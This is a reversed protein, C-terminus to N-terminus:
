NIKKKTTVTIKTLNFIIKLLKYIVILTCILTVFIIISLIAIVDMDHKQYWPDYAISTRLHSAGKHRIVFEIWWIVHELVDYPKDENLEKVKLMRKKYGEDYLIDIISENLNERSLKMINLHKAVGLSVMKKVQTYQDALVPLGLLPVTYYVAEETSQIGGQYIFLKINPHALISQQPFWKAIYINDPKNPLESDHKWLIKYPLSAFVDRFISQVHKSLSSIRVNTGLSMYIFGNPADTIFETLNEPLAALKKSIQFNGFSLVNSTQPRVFSLVKQQNQFVFSINREMDRIDPINKGLYKEAIAQQESYFHNLTCYIHYWLRIFNKIRQWLSLNFDTTDGMEWASPHSPLVPAGLLYYNSNYLGLTSVGILPANFRYALAYLSPSKITEVIVVDFKTDSNLEYMKRVEPHKYINETIQNCVPWLQENVTSLWTHTEMNEIFNIKTVVNYNSKFNIETLNTLSPDNIPDTTLVVIKHGRRSLTTWLLQYAIHHSYSPIAIIALIRATEIPTATCVFCAIWFIMEVVPKM